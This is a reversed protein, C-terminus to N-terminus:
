TSKLKLKKFHEVYAELEINEYDYENIEHTIYKDGIIDEDIVISFGRKELPAYKVWVITDFILPLLEHKKNSCTDLETEFIDYEMDEACDMINEVIAIEDVYGMLIAATYITRRRSHLLSHLRYIMKTKRECEIYSSVVSDFLRDIVDDSLKSIIKKLIKICEINKNVKNSIHKDIYEGGNDVFNEIQKRLSVITTM